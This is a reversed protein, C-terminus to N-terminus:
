QNIPFATSLEQIMQDSLVCTPRGQLLFALKATEELEEAAFVASQLNTASVVSGHNELLVAAHKAAAEEILSGTEQSGPHTYKLVPVKGVRMAVYPTLLPIANDRDVDLLCSLATAYTSHLHVIAGAQPRVRYMALHMPTEKTPSGGSIHRGFQDLKAICEPNLTGLCANTPTMLITHEDLRASLNGSAGFTLGREFMSHGWFCLEERLKIEQKM